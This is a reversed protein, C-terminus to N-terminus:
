VIVAVLTLYINGCVEKLLKEMEEIEGDFAAELMRKQRNVEERRKRREEAERQRMEEAEKQEKLM